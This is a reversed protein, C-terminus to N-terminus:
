KVLLGIMKIKENSSLVVKVSLKKGSETFDKIENLNCNTWNRKNDNSIFCVLTELGEGSVRLEGQTVNYDLEKTELILYGESMGSMLKLVGNVIEVNSYSDGSFFGDNMNRPYTYKMENKNKLRQIQVQTKKTARLYGAIGKLRKELELDMTFQPYKRKISLVFYWDHINKPPISVRMKEGENVYFFGIGVGSGTIAPQIGNLYEAQARSKVEDYTKLNDDKVILERTGTGLTYIIPIDNSSGVVIVKDKLPVNSFGLEKSSVYNQSYVLADNTCIESGKDFFSFVKLPSIRMVFGCKNIIDEICDFFPKGEWKVSMRETTSNITGKTFGLSKIQMLDGSVYLGEIVIAGNSDDKPTEVKGSFVLKTADVLDEYINVVKDRYSQLDCNDKVFTIKFNGINQNVPKEWEYKIVTSTIDIGGLEVKWKINDLPYQIWITGRRSKRAKIVM